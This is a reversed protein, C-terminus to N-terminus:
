HMWWLPKDRNSESRLVEKKELCNECYYIDLKNWTSQYGGSEYSYHTEQYVWKHKCEAM